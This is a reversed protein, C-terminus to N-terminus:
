KQRSVKVVSSQTIPIVLGMADVTVTLSTEDTGARSLYQGDKSILHVGNGKGTGEISFDQGQMNGKGAITTKSDSAIKWAKTGDVATDGLLKYNYITTQKLEAGNAQAVTASVTDVWEGGVKLMAPLVPLFSRMASAQPSKADGGAPVMVDGSIAKGNAGIVGTFKTGITKSLDPTPGMSSTASMTDLTIQYELQGAGKATTVLSIRQEANAEGEQKQGMMEQAVKTTSNLVFKANQPAYTLKVDQARAAFPLAALAVLAPSLRRFM